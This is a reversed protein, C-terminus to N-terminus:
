EKPESDIIIKEMKENNLITKFLKTHEQEGIQGSSQISDIAKLKWYNAVACEIELQAHYLVLGLSTLLFQGRRRKILGLKSLRATRSYYQKITLGQLYRM